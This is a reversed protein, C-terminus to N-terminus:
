IKWRAARSSWCKNFWKWKNFGLVETSPFSCLDKNVLSSTVRSLLKGLFKTLEQDILKLWRFSNGDFGSIKDLYLCSVLRFKWRKLKRVINLRVAVSRWLVWARWRRSLSKGQLLTFHYGSHPPMATREGTGQSCGRKFSKLLQITGKTLFSLTYHM